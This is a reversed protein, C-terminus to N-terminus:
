LSTGSANIMMLIRSGIVRMMIVIEVVVMAAM